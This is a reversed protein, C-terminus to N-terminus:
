PEDVAAVQALGRTALGRGEGRQGRIQRHLEHIHAHLGHHGGAPRLVIGGRTGEGAAEVAM